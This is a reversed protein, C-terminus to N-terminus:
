REHGALWGTLDGPALQINEDNSAAAAAAALIYVPCATM